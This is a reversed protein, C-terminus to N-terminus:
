PPSCGSKGLCPGAPGSLSARANVAYMFPDPTIIGHKTRLEDMATSRVGIVSPPITSSNDNNPLPQVYFTPYDKLMKKLSLHPKAIQPM